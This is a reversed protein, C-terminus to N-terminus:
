NSPEEYDVEIRAMFEIKAYRAGGPKAVHNARTKLVTAAPHASVWQAKKGEAQEMTDAEFAITIM